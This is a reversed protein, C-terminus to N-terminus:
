FQIDMRVMLHSIGRRFSLIQGSVGAPERYIRSKGPITKSASRDLSPRVVPCRDTM